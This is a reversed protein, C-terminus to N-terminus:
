FSLCRGCPEELQASTPPTATSPLVIRCTDVCSRATGEIVFTTFRVDTMPWHNHLDNALPLPSPQRHAVYGPGQVSALYVRIRCALSSVPFQGVHGSGGM